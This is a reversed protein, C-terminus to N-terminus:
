GRHPGVSRRWCRWAAPAVEGREWTLTVEPTITGRSGHAVPALQEFPVCGWAVLRSRLRVTGCESAFPLAPRGAALACERFTGPFPVLPSKAFAFRVIPWCRSPANAAARNYAPTLESEKVVRNHGERESRIEYQFEGDETPPMRRIVQYTGRASDLQPVAGKSQASCYL